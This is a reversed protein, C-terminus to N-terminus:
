LAVPFGDIVDNAPKLETEVLKLRSQADLRRWARHPSRPWPEANSDERFLQDLGYTM